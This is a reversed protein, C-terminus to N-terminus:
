MMHARWGVTLPVRRLVVTKAVRDHLCRRERGFIMLVDISWLLIGISPVMLLAHFLAGRLLLMRLARPRRADSGAVYIGALRKGVTQDIVGHLGCNVAATAGLALAVLVKRAITEDGWTMVLTMALVVGYLSYDIVAALLRRGRSALVVRCGDERLDGQDYGSSLDLSASPKWQFTVEQEVDVRQKTEREQAM